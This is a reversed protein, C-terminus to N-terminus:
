ASSLSRNGTAAREDPNGARAPADMEALATALRANFAREGFGEAHERLVLPSWSRAACDLIAEAWVAPDWGDVLLGTVGDIVSEAAGGSRSAVAPRGASAAELPVYGFDDAAACVVLRAREYEARLEGDSLGSLFRVQGRAALSRLRDIEPGAGVVTLPVGAIGCAAIAVDVRKYPLLRSVVLATAPESPPSLVLDGSANVLPPHLVPPTIGYVRALTASTRASNALHYSHARAADRDRRRLSRAALSALGALPAPFYSRPDYVFRPATHWYVLSRPHRVHHAFASSSIVALDFGSLDMSAFMPGYSLARLRFRSAQAPNLVRTARVPLAAFEPYTTEPCYVSTFLTADDFARSLHLAVREAGGRQTLFDHVVAM